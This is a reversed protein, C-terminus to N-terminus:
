GSQNAPMQSNFPMAYGPQSPAGWLGLQPTSQQVGGPGGGQMMPMRGTPMQGGRQGLGGGLLHFIQPYRQELHFMGNELKQDMPGNTMAPSFSM